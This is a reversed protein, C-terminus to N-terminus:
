RFRRTARCRRSSCSRSVDLPRLGYRCSDRWLWAMRRGRPGPPRKRVASSTAAISRSALPPSSAALDSPPSAAAALDVSEAPVFRLDTAPDPDGLFFDFVLVLLGSSAPSSSPQPVLARGLKRTGVTTPLAALERHSIVASPPSRGREM